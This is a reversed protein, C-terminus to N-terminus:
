PAPALALDGGPWRLRVRPARLAAGCRGSSGRWARFARIGAADLIQVGRRSDQFPSVPGVAEGPRGAEPGRPRRARSPAACGPGARRRQPLRVIALLGLLAARGPDDARGDVVVLDTTLPLSELLENAFLGVIAALLGFRLLLLIWRCPGSWPERAAAIWAADAPASRREAARHGRRRGAMALADRRLLLRMLVFLLLVGMSFLISGSALELLASLLMARGRCPRTAAWRPSPGPRAWGSPCCASSRCSCCSPSAGLRPRRAHRPGRRPRRAGGGLLRTWSVLTWPRLRRAYPEVALYFLWVLTAELLVLGAGRGSSAGDARELRGRPAGRPGVLALGLAFLLLAVRFAGRRDGRGLVINRRAMFGAAGMLLVTLGLFTLQKALKGKPWAYGGMREPKTWPAIVEFWVPRGRYAAAEVRIPLDKREPWAGEWAARADSHFLPTWRPEVARFAGPDLRAEAFLRRGTRPSPPTAAPDSELQPRSRTSACSRPREHRLHRGGHRHRRPRAQAWYVRGSPLWSVIPRPSQRYWFQLVPRRGRRSRRGAGSAVPGERPRRQHLRLGPRLGLRRRGPRRTLGVGRSSSGRGTRSCPRRSRSRSGSSSSSRAPSSPCPWSGPWSSPSCAGPSRPGCARAGRGGRGRARAVADRGGRDGGRAPRQRDADRLRRPGLVPRRRPEKELCALIAREVAPDLGAVLASPEIPREDRHKRVFEALSKGQFARRGTYLEYSCSASARLHRQPRTVERGQLQEPSMYCPTGSRM